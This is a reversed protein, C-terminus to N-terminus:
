TGWISSLLRSVTLSYQEIIWFFYRHLWHKLTILMSLVFHTHPWECTRDNHISALFHFERLIVTYFVVNQTVLITSYSWIRIVERVTKIIDIFYTNIYIWWLLGIGNKEICKCQCYLKLSPPSVWPLSSSLHCTYCLLYNQEVNKMWRMWTLKTKIGM